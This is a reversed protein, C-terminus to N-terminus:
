SSIKQATVETTCSPLGIAFWWIWGILIAQLPVRILLYVPGWQHGGMGVHQFAAYINVPLFLLLMVILLWGVLRRLRPILVAAAGAIEIFGTLIVVPVKEPVWPPLMEVMSRTHLFHGVGTFCFVFTIGLCGATSDSIPRRRTFRDILLLMLYPAFLLGLMVPPTTM